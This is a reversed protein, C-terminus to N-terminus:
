CDWTPVGLVRGILCFDRLASQFTQEIELRHNAVECAQGDGISTQQIFAGGSGLGHVHKVVFFVFPGFLHLPWRTKRSGVGHKGWVMSTSFVRAKGCPMSSFTPSQFDNSNEGFFGEAHHQL